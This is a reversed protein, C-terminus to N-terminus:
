QEDDGRHWDRDRTVGFRRLNAFRLHLTRRHGHSRAGDDFWREVSGHARLDLELVYHRCHDHTRDYYGGRGPHARRLYPNRTAHSSCL